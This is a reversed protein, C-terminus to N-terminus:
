YKKRYRFVLLLAILLVAALAGYLMLSESSVERAVGPAGDPRMGGNGNQEMGGRGDVPEPPEVGEQFDIQNRNEGRQYTKARSKFEEDGGWSGREGHNGGMMSGLATLDLGEASVLLAPDEAQAATTAPITGDLQGRVSEGRRQCLDEFVTLATKYEDYTCFATADKQVYESIRGDLDKLLATMKDEAFADVILLQLYGHYRGLYDENSLLVSILPRSALEVGSVPTDIPFNVVSAANGSQFGGWSLNYDWPLITIKGERECIVYNQAMSSSYSDLNVVLTHAALYRLIQDIDYYEELATGESLARIAEVVQQYDSETGKGIVNDFIDGYSATSDDMYELSGGASGNQGMGSKKVSYFTGEGDGFVREEYSDNYLEVALYLGWGSGNVQIDAYGFLPVDVGAQRMLEYSVYEKMYTNDGLMNNLVFSELGFCTQGKVYEDFQLRFSYRDSDSNAVQTLSSNGKPRVGVDEIRIGNVIVDAVIYQENIANDLMNQWETEDALIEISIIDTNFIEEAYLSESENEVGAVFTGALTLIVIGAALALVICVAVLMDIKDSRIM